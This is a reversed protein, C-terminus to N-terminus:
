QLRPLYADGAFDLFLVIGASAQATCNGTPL